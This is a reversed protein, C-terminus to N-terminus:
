LLPLYVSVLILEIDRSRSFSFLITERKIIIIINFDFQLQMLEIVTSELKRLRSNQDGHWQVGGIVSQLDFTMGLM